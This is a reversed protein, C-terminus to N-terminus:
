EGKHEKHCAMCTTAKALTQGAARDAPNDKVKKVAAIVADTKKKWAEKTGRPPTGKGLEVYLEVLQSLEEKSARGALVKARLSDKGGEHAKEMIEHIEYKAKDDAAARDAVVVALALLAAGAGWVCQKM